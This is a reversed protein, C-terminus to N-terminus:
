ARQRTSPWQQARSPHERKTALSSRPKRTDAPESSAVEPVSDLATVLSLTTASDVGKRILALKGSCAVVSADQPSDKLVAALMDRQLQNRDLEIAAQKRNQDLKVLATCLTKLAGLM